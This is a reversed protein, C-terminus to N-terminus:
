GRTSILSYRGKAPIHQGGGSHCTSVVRMCMCKSVEEKSTHQRESHCASVCITFQIRYRGEALISGGVTVRM